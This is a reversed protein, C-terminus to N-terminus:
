YVLVLGVADEVQKVVDESRRGAAAQVPRLKGTVAPVTRLFDLIFTSKVAYNVNQPLSGVAELVSMDNLRMAIIGVTNGAQTVLPGGSNGPQIAVSM